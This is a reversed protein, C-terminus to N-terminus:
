KAKVRDKKQKMAPITYKMYNYEDIRKLLPKQSLWEKQPSRDSALAANLQIAM